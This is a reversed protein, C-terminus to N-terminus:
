GRVVVRNNETHSHKEKTTNQENTKDKLNWMYNFGTANTNRQNMESQMIGELNMWTTVSPLTKNKIVSYYEETHVTDKKICENKIPVQTAEM